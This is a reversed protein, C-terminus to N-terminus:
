HKYISKDALGYNFPHKTLNLAHLPVFFFKKQIKTGM